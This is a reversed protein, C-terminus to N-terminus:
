RTAGLHLIFEALWKPDPFGLNKKAKSAIEVPLFRPLEAKKVAAKERKAFRRKWGEFTYISLGQAQCYTEVGEPCELAKAVHDRWYQERESNKM